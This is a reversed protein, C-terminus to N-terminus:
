SASARATTLGRLAHYPAETPSKALIPQDACAHRNSYGGGGGVSVRAKQETLLILLLILACPWLMKQSLTRPQGFQCAPAPTAICSSNHSLLCQKFSPAKPPWCALLQFLFCLSASNHNSNSSKNSNNKHPLCNIPLM